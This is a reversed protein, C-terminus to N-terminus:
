KTKELEESSVISDKKKYILLVILFCVGGTLIVTITQVGHMLFAFQGGVLNDLGYAILSATVFAHYTGVGGPSPLVMGIAGMILVTLGCMMSLNSTIELSFFLIYTMVYYMLWINLTHLVYYFRSSTKMQRISFLGEKMGMLFEKVKAFLATQMIKKRFLFALALALFFLGAPIALLLVKNAMLGSKEAFQDIVFAGIKDFEILFTTVTLIFLIVLDIAREAVVAGFSVNIPIQEIRKLMGCRVVEGLRPVFFNAFYGIMVAMFLIPKKAQYGLPKLAIGWRYGRSWHSFLAAFGSMVLWFPKADSLGNFLESMDQKRYVYWFLGIAISLSILYKVVSVLNKEM